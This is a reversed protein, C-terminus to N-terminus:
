GDPFLERVAREFALAADSWTPLSRGHHLSGEALAARRAAGESGSLLGELADALSREDGAPVLVGAEPPVTDPVAGGRTSLVPLGRALAEALAM